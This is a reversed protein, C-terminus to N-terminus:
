GTVFSILGHLDQEAIWGRFDCGGKAWAARRQIRECPLADRKEINAFHPAVLEYIPKFREHFSTADGCAAVLLRGICSGSRNLNDLVDREVTM